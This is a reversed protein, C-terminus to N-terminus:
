AWHARPAAFFTRHKWYGATILWSAESVPFLENMGTTIRGMTQGVLEESLQTSWALSDEFQAHFPSSSNGFVYILCNLSLRGVRNEGEYSYQGRFGQADICDPNPDKPVRVFDLGEWFGGKGYETRTYHMVRGLVLAAMKSPDTRSSGRLDLGIGFDKPESGNM